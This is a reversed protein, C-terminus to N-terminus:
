RSPLGWLGRHALRADAQLPVFADAYRVDPPVTMLQAYGELLLRANFMRARITADSAEQPPSLWVYALLRGYKDRLGVDTELWVVTGPPLSSRTFRSADEGYPEHETTWEPTNVGILRITEDEGGPLTAHFTDGDVHRAVVARVVVPAAPAPRGDSGGHTLCGALLLAVACLAGVVAGSRRQVV